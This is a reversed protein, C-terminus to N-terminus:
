PKGTLWVPCNDEGPSFSLLYIPEDANLPQLYLNGDADRIAIYDILQSDPSWGCTNVFKIGEPRPLQKVISGDAGVIVIDSKDPWTTTEVALKTSDPSWYVRNVYSGLAAMKFYAMEPNTIVVTGDALGLGIKQGDSSQAVAYASPESAFKCVDCKLAQTDTGDNKITFWGKDYYYILKSDFSWFAVSARPLDVITGFNAETARIIQFFQEGFEGVSKIARMLINQSDPSWEPINGLTPMSYERSGDITSLHLMSEACPQDGARRCTGVIIKQGDPSIKSFRYNFGHSISFRQEFEGRAVLVKEDSGSPNIVKIEHDVVIMLKGSGGMPTPVPTITATPLPVPTASPILTVVAASTPLSQPATCNTLLIALIVVYRNLKM